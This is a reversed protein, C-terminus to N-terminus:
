LRGFGRLYLLHILIGHAKWWNKSVAWEEPYASWGWPIAWSGDALQTRVIFDCEYEANTEIAPYFASDRSSILQSPKCVYDTEWAATDTGAWKVAAARL